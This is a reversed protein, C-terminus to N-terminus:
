LYKNKNGLNIRKILKLHKFKDIHKYQQTNIM